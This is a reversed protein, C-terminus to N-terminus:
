VNRNVSALPRATSDLWILSLNLWGPPPPPPPPPTEAAHSPVPSPPPLPQSPLAQPGGCATLALALCVAACLLRLTRRM